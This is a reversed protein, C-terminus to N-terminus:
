WALCWSAWGWIAPPTCCCSPRPRTGYPRPWAWPWFYWKVALGFLALAMVLSVPVFFFPNM